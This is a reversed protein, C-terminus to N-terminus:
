VATVASYPFALTHEKGMIELLVLIRNSAAMKVLGQLQTFPGQTIHVLTGPQLGALEAVDTQHQQELWQAIQCLRTHTLRAPEHGFAVLKSVGTTSKIPAISQQASSPRAFVYRPFLTEFKFPTEQRTKGVVKLTPCWAEYNQRLLHEVVLAESRPKTYVLYWPAQLESQLVQDTDYSIM